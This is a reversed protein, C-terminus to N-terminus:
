VRREIEVPCDSEGVFVVLVAAYTVIAVMVEQTSGHALMSLLFAFALVFHCTTLLVFAQRQIYRLAIMPALLSLGAVLAIIFSALREAIGEPKTTM